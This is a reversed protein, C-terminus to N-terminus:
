ETTISDRLKEELEKKIDIKSTILFLECNFNSLTLFIDMASIQSSEKPYLLYITQYGDPKIIM